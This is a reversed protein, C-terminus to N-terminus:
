DEMRKKLTHIFDIEGPDKKNLLALYYSVWDCFYVAEILREKFTLSASKISLIDVGEKSLLDNVIEIRKKIRGSVDDDMITIIKYKIGSEKVTEWGVIENYNMEPYEAAFALGKSNENLECKFRKGVSDNFDAISYIV